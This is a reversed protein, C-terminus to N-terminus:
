EATFYPFSLFGQEFAHQYCAAMKRISPRHTLQGLGAVRVPGQACKAEDEALASLADMASNRDKILPMLDNKSDSTLIAHVDQELSHPLRFLHFVGSRGIREDHIEKAAESVSGVGASLVTRPFNFELFRRGTASLFATHWWDFQDKEGLYSVLVRLRVIASLRDSKQQGSLEAAM